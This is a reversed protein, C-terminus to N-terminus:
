VVCVAWIYSSGKGGSGPGWKNASVTGQGVTQIEHLLRNIVIATTSAQTGSPMWLWGSGATSGEDFALQLIGFHEVYALTCKGAQLQKM